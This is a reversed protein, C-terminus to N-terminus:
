EDLGCAAKYDYRQECLRVKEGLDSFRNYCFSKNLRNLFFIM